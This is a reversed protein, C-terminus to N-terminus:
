VPELKCVEALRIWNPRPAIFPQHDPPLVFVERNGFKHHSSLVQRYVNYVHISNAVPRVLNFYMVIAVVRGTGRLFEGAAQELMPILHNIDGDPAWSQPFKLFFAGMEDEPLQTRAAKLTNLISSKSPALNSEVRCKVDACVEGSPTAIKLDYSSGRPGGPTVYNFKVGALALIKGVELEAFRDEIHGVSMEQLVNKLGPVEQLNLITEALDVVRARHLSEDGAKADLNRFFPSKDDSALVHHELWDSGFTTSLVRLAFAYVHDAWSAEPLAEHVERAHKRIQELMSHQLTTM